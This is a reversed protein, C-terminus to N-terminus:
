FPWICECISVWILRLIIVMPLNRTRLYLSHWIAILIVLTVLLSHDVRTASPGYFVEMDTQNIIDYAEFWAVFASHHIKQVCKEIGRVPGPTEGQGNLVNGAMHTQGDSVRASTWMSCGRDATQKTGPSGVNFRLEHKKRPVKLDEGGDHPCLHHKDIQM